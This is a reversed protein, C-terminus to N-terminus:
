SKLAVDEEIYDIFEQLYGPLRKNKTYLFWTNRIVRNGEKDELPTIFLHYKNEFNEPLFCVTYGFDKDILQCAFDLFGVTMKQSSDEEFYCNWWADLQKKVKESMKYDIRTMHKLDEIQVIPKKSILVAENQSILIRNVAGEYDGRVFAVNLLGEMMQKFLEDSSDNIVNFHVQPHEEIYPVLVEPLTYKSYTFAAGITIQEEDGANEDQLTHKTEKMFDLYIKAREALYEGKKTFVLGKSTRYVLQVGFEEEIQKLRRTLSPQTMYLISAVKTLNPNKYLEYIIEWDLDKM